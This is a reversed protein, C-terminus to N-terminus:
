GTNKFCLSPYIQTCAVGGIDMKLTCEKATCLSDQFLSVEMIVNEVLVSDRM